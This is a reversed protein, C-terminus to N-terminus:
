PNHHTSIEQIAKFIKQQLKSLRELEEDSTESSDLKKSTNAFQIQLYKLKLEKIIHKAVLLDEKRPDEKKEIDLIQRLNWETLDKTNSIKIIYDRVNSKPLYREIRESEIYEYVGVVGGQKNRILIDLLTIAASFSPHIGLPDKTPWITESKKTNNRLKEEVSESEIEMFTSIMKIARSKLFPDSFTQAIELMSNLLETHETFSLEVDKTSRIFSFIDKPHSIIQEFEEKSYKKIYSDPDEGDPLNVVNCDVDIEGLVKAAKMTAKIGASDSDYLITVKNVYRKLLYAQEKTLATGQSAVAYRIGEQYLSIVDLPGEVLLVEKRKRLERKNQCLGFLELKKEYLPHDGSNLYKPKDDNLVRGILGVVTGNVKRIPIMMRNKFIMSVHGDRENFIRSQLLSEKSYLTIDPSGKAFGISFAEKTEPSIGRKTLYREFEPSTQDEFHLTVQKYLGKIEGLVKNQKIDATKKPIDVGFRDALSKVAEPFTLGEMDM